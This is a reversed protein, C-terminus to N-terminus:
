ESLAGSRSLLVKEQEDFLINNQDIGFDVKKLFTLNEQVLSAVLFSYKLEPETGFKALFYMSERFGQESGLSIFIGNGSPSVNRVQVEIEDGYYLYPPKQIESLLDAKRSSYAELAVREKTELSFVSNEISKKEINKNSFINQLQNLEANLVEARKLSPNIEDKKENIKVEQFSIEKQIKELEEGLKSVKEELNPIKSSLFMMEKEAEESSSLFEQTKIRLDGRQRFLSNLVKTSENQDKELERIADKKKSEAADLFAKQSSLKDQSLFFLAITTALVIFSIVRCIIFFLRM